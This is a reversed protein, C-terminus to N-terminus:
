RRPEPGNKVSRFVPGWTPHGAEAANLSFSPNLALALRFEDRCQAERGSTCHIFALYKHAVVQDSDRLGLDLSRQLYSAADAFRGREYVRIGAALEVDGAPMLTACAGLAICCAALAGRASM